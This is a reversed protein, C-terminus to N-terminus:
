EASKGTGILIGIMEIKGSESLFVCYLNMGEYEENVSRREPKLRM